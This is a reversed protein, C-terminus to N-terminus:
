RVVVEEIEKIVAMMKRWKALECEHHAIERTIYDKNFLSNFKYEGIQYFMDFGTKADWITIYHEEGYEDVWRPEYFGRKKCSDCTCIDVIEGVEGFTTIVKDGVKFKYNIHETTTM